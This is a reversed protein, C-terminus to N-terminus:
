SSCAMCWVRMRDLPSAFHSLRYAVVAAALKLIYVRDRTYPIAPWLRPPQIIASNTKRDKTSCQIKVDM